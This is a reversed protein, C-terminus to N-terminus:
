TNRLRLITVACFVSNICSDGQQLALEAHVFPWDEPSLLNSYPGDPPFYGYLLFLALVILSLALIFILYLRDLLAAVHAWTVDAEKYSPCLQHSRRRTM